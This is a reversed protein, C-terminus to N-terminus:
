VHITLVPCSAHAIVSYATSWPSHTSGVDVISRAGLVMMDTEREAAVKLIRESALGFELVTEPTYALGASPPILGELRRSSQEVPGTQGGLQTYDEIVHMLTLRARFEAALTVAKRAVVEAGHAFDTAYLIERLELDPPALDRGANELAPVLAPLKARGSVNPGVSLVPCKAHRLINEAVSGLLLKGLGTRGHTGIVILDIENEKAIEALNGWVQGHRVYNRHPISEFRASIQNLKERTETTAEDYITGLSVCDVGGTMMLIGADSLVHVTHLKSGFRRCIATAYPLAAESTASFDTAFLVNKVSVSATTKLSASEKAEKGTVEGGKAETLAM